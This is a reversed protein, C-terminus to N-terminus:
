IKNILKYKQIRSLKKILAERSQAEQKTEFEEFYVLKVRCDQGQISLLWVKMIFELENKLTMLGDQIIPIIVCELIYTYNM